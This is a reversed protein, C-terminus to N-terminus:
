AALALKANTVKTALTAIDTELNTRAGDPIFDNGSIMSTVNALKSELKNVSNVITVFEGELTELADGIRRVDGAKKINGNLM